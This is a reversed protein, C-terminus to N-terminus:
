KEEERKIDIRKKAENLEKRTEELEWLTEDLQKILQQRQTESREYLLNKSDLQAKLKNTIGKLEIIRDDLREIEKYARDLLQIDNGEKASRRTFISSIVAGIVSSSLILTILQWTDM